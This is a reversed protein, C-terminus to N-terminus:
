PQSDSSVTSSWARSDVARCNTTSGSSPVTENMFPLSSKVTESATTSFPAGTAPTTNLGVRSSNNAAASSPPAVSFPAGIRALAVDATSFQRMTAARSMSDWGAQRSGQGGISIMLIPEM